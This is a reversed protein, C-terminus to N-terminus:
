PMKELLAIVSAILEPSAGHAIRIPVGRIEIAVAVMKDPVGPKHGPAPEVMDPATDLVVPLFVEGAQRAEAEARERVERRWAYIQAPSVGCCEAVAAVDCDPDLSLDVAARKDDFTWRRRPGAARTAGSEQEV